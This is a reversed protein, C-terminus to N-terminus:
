LMACAIASGAMVIGRSIRTSDTAEENDDILWYHALYGLFLGASVRAMSLVTLSVMDRGILGTVLGFVLVALFFIPLEIGQRIRYPLKIHRGANGLARKLRGMM